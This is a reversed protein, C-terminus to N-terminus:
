DGAEAPTFRTRDISARRLKELNRRDLRSYAPSVIRGRDLVLFVVALFLINLALLAAGFQWSGRIYGGYSLGLITGSMAVIYVLALPLMFKWGLAMLQDYRFRPLTWRVWMFVFVFFLIKMMFMIFTAISAVLSHAYNDWLTFPIDWGGFFLTAMLASATVMNAYEAIFFMSFKM